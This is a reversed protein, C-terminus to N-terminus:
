EAQPHPSHGERASEGFAEDRSGHIPVDKSLGLSDFIRRIRGPGAVLDITGGKTKVRRLGEFIVGVGTSDLYEVQGLDIILNVEGEDVLDVLRQRLLPATYADIDGRLTIVSVVDEHSEELQLM